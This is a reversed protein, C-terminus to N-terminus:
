LSMPRKRQEQFQKYTCNKNVKTIIMINIMINIKISTM